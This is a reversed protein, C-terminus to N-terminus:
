LVVSRHQGCGEARVAPFDNGGAFLYNTDGIWLGGLRVGSDKGFGLLRGLLGTGMLFNTAGPNSSIGGSTNDFLSVDPADAAPAADRPEEAARAGPTVVVLGLCVCATLAFSIPRRLYPSPRPRTM